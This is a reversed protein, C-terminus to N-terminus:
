EFDTTYSLELNPYEDSITHPIKTTMTPVISGPKGGIWLTLKGSYDGNWIDNETADPYNYLKSVFKGGSTYGFGWVKNDDTSVSFYGDPIPMDVITIYRAFDTPTTGNVYSNSNTGSDCGVAMMGFVLVMILIELWFYNKKM